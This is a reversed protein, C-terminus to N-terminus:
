VSCITPLTLHTYSVAKYKIGKGKYPEPKRLKRIQAAVQGVLEKDISTLTIATQKVDADVGEPLEYFIPHSYGLEFRIFPGLREARYGVGNIELERRYGDSVGTVMNAVLSRILGQQARSSKSDDPRIVRLVAGEQEITVVSALTRELSGKPGKISITQGDIQVEVGNPIEIPLKGIRSM